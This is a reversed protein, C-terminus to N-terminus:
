LAAFEAPNQQLRFGGEFQYGNRFHSLSSTGANRINELIQDFDPSILRVDSIDHLGRSFRRRGVSVQVARVAQKCSTIVRSMASSLRGNAGRQKSTARVKTRDM